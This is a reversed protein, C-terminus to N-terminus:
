TRKDRPREKERLGEFISCNRKSSSMLCNELLTLSLLIKTVQVRVIIIISYNRKLLFCQPGWWRASFQGQFSVNFSHFFTNNCFQVLGGVNNLHCCKWESFFANDEKLALTSMTMFSASLFEAATMIDM